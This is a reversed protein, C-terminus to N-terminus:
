LVAFRGEPYEGVWGCPWYGMKYVPLLGRFFGPSEIAYEVHAWCLDRLVTDQIEPWLGRDAGIEMNETRVERRQFYAELGSAVAGSLHGTTTSFISDIEEDAIAKLARKELDETQARWLEHSQYKENDFPVVADPVLDFQTNPSGSRAFWDIAGCESIFLQNM